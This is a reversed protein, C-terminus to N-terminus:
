KLAQSINEIRCLFEYIDPQYEVRRLMTKNLGHTGIM